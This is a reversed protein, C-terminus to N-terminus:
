VNGVSNIISEDLRQNEPQSNNIAKLMEILPYNNQEIGSFYKRDIIKWDKIIYVGNDYNDCDLQDCTDIGIGYGDGFFNAIVRCLQAWGYNDEEPSEYGAM